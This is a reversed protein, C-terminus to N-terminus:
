PRRDRRALFPAWAPAALDDGVFATHLIVLGPPVPWGARFLRALTPGKGGALKEEDPPLKEFPRM